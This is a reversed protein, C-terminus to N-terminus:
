FDIVLNTLASGPGEDDDYDDSKKDKLEDKVDVIQFPWDELEYDEEEDDLLINVDSKAKEARNKASRMYTKISRAIKKDGNNQKAMGPWNKAATKLFGAEKGTARRALNNQLRVLKAFDLNSCYFKTTKKCHSPMRGAKMQLWNKQVKRRLDHRQRKHSRKEDSKQRSVKNYGASTETTSPMDNDSSTNPQSPVAQNDTPEHKITRRTTFGMPGTTTVPESHEINNTVPAASETPMAREVSAGRRDDADQETPAVKEVSASRRDDADQDPTTTM